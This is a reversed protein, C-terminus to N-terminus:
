QLWKQSVGTNENKLESYMCSPALDIGSEPKPQESKAQLCDLRECPNREGGLIVCLNILSGPFRSWGFAAFTHFHYFPCRCREGPSFGQREM